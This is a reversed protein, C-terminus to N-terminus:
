YCRHIKCYLIAMPLKNFSVKQSPSLDYFKPGEPLCYAIPTQGITILCANVGDPMRQMATGIILDHVARHAGQLDWGKVSTSIHTLVLPGIPEIEVPEENLRRYKGDKYLLLELPLM